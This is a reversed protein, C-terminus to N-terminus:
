IIATNIIVCDAARTIATYLSRLAEPRNKNELIDLADVFVNQYTSGQSRHTTIAHCPRLDAMSRKLKWYNWWNSKKRRAQEAREQLCFQIRLEESQDAPIYLITEPKGEPEFVIKWVRFFEKSFWPHISECCELVKGEVASHLSVRTDPKGNDDLRHVAGATIAREGPVFPEERYNGYLLRRIKQNFGIVRHNRWSIIRFTDPNDRYIDSCFAKSMWNEFSNGPMLFLGNEGQKTVYQEVQIREGTQQAQRIATALGIIPNGAKQRVIDTLEAKLPIKFTISEAEGIPPLQAPDGIFITKTKTMPSTAALIIRCVEDGIMSCEDVVILDYDHFRSEGQPELVERDGRYKVVLGLLSHITGTEVALGARAAMQELVRAAKHTPAALYVSTSTDLHQVFQTITFTKGTGAYGSLLLFRNQSNMFKQMMM